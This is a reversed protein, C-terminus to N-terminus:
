IHLFLLAAAGAVLPLIINDFDKLPAAETVM